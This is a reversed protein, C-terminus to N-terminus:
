SAITRCPKPEKRETEELEQFHTRITLDWDQWTEEKTSDPGMHLTGHDNNETSKPSVGRQFDRYLHIVSLRAAALSPSQSTVVSLHAAMAASM